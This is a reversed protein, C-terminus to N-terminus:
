SSSKMTRVRSYWLTGAPAAMDTPPVVGYGCGVVRRQQVPRQAAQWHWGQQRRGVHQSALLLQGAQHNRLASDQSAHTTQRSQSPRSGPYRGHGIGAKWDPCEQGGLTWSWGGAGRTWTWREVWCGPPWRLLQLHVDAGTEDTDLTHLADSLTLGGHADSRARAM